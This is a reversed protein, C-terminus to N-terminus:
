TREQPAGDPCAESGDSHGAPPSGEPELGHIHAGIAEEINAYAETSDLMAPNWVGLREAVQMIQNERESGALVSMLGTCQRPAPKFAEGEEDYDITKHCQFAPANFIEDLRRMSLQYLRGWGKRFQSDACPRTQEFM